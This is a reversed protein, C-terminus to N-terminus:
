CFTDSWSRIRTHIADINTKPFDYDLYVNFSTQHDNDGSEGKDETYTTWTPPSGGSGVVREVRHFHFDVHKAPGAVSLTAMMTAIAFVALFVFTKM